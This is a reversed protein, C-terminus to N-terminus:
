AHRSIGKLRNKMDNNLKQTERKLRTLDKSAADFQLDKFTTLAANHLQAIEDVNKNIADLDDKLTDVKLAYGSLCATLKIMCTIPQPQIICVELFFGEMSDLQSSTPPIRSRPSWANMEIAEHGDM